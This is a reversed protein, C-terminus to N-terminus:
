DEMGGDRQSGRWTIRDFVYIAVREGFASVLPFNKRGAAFYRKVIALGRNLAIRKICIPGIM